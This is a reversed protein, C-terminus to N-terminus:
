AARLEAYFLTKGQAEFRLEYNTKHMEGVIRKNETELVNDWLEATIAISKRMMEFYDADDTAIELLGGPVLRSHLLKLFGPTMVRRGHHRRKPWPDPFYVHFASVSGPAVAEGLFARAEVKIFRINPLQRRETRAKVRKLWKGIRDIGLFNRGPNEMAYGTLFKGRGCGIEIEVLNSNGFLESFIVPACQQREVLAARAM